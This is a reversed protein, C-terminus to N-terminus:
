DCNGEFYSKCWKGIRIVEWPGSEELVERDEYKIKDPGHLYGAICVKLKRYSFKNWDKIFKKCFIPDRWSRTYYFHAPNISRIKFSLSCVNNYDSNPWIVRDYAAEAKVLDIRYCTYISKPTKFEDDPIAWLSFSFILLLLFCAAVKM